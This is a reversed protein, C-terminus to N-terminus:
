VIMEDCVIEEGGVRSNYQEIIRRKQHGERIKDEIERM